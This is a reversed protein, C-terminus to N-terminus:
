CAKSLSLYVQLMRKRVRLPWSVSRIATAAIGISGAAQADEPSRGSRTKSSAVQSYTNKLRGSKIAARISGESLGEQGAISNV